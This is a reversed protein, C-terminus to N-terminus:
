KWFRYQETLQTRVLYEVEPNEGELMQAVLATVSTSIAEKREHVRELQEETM